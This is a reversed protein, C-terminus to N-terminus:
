NRPRRHGQDPKNFTEACLAAPAEAAEGLGEEPRLIADRGVAPLPEPALEEPTALLAALPVGLAKSPFAFAPATDAVDEGRGACGACGVCGSVADSIIFRRGTPASTFFKAEEVLTVCIIFLAMKEAVWGAAAGVGRM